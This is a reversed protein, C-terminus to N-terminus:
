LLGLTLDPFDTFPTVVKDLMTVDAESFPRFGGRRDLYLVAAVRGEIVLPVAATTEIRFAAMSASADGEPESIVTRKERMCRSIMSASIPFGDGGGEGWVLRKGAQAFLTLDDGHQGRVMLCTASADFTLNIQELLQTSNRVCRSPNARVLMKYMAALCEAAHRERTLKVPDSGTTAAVPKPPAEGPLGSLIDASSPSAAPKWHPPTPQESEISPIATTTRQPSFGASGMGKGFAPPPMPISFQAAMPISSPEPPLEVDPLAPSPATSPAREPIVPISTSPVHPPPPPFSVSPRPQTGTPTSVPATPPNGLKRHSDTGKAV